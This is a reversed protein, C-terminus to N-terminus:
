QSAVIASKPTKKEMADRLEQIRKRLLIKRRRLRGFRAKDGNRASM